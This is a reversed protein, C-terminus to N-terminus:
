WQAKWFPRDWDPPAIETAMFELRRATCHEKRLSEAVNPPATWSVPKNTAVDSVKSPLVATYPPAMENLPLAPPLMVFLLKVVFVAAARRAEIAEDSM